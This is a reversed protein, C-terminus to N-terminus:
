KNKNRKWFYVTLGGVIVVGAIVLFWIWGSGSNGKKQEPYLEVEITQILEKGMREGEKKEEDTLGTQYRESNKINTLMRDIKQKQKKWEIRTKELGFQKIAEQISSRYLDLVCKFCNGKEM